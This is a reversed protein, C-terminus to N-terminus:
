LSVGGCGVDLIVDDKQPDLWQMVKTALKPVFSAANQYAQRPSSVSMDIDHQIFIPHGSPLHKGRVVLQGQHRDGHQTDTYHPTEPM